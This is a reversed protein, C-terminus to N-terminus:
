PEALPAYNTWLPSNNAIGKVSVAFSEVALGNPTEVFQIEVSPDFCQSKPIKFLAAGLNEGIGNVQSILAFRQAQQDTIDLRNPGKVIQAVLDPDPQLVVDNFSAKALSYDADILHGNYAIIHGEPVDYTRAFEINEEADLGFM